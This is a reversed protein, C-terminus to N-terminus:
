KARLRRRLVLGGVAFVRRIGRPKGSRGPSVSGLRGWSPGGGHNRDGKALNSRGAGLGEVMLEWGRGPANRRPTVTSGQEVGVLRDRWDHTFVADGYPGGTRTSINGNVGWTYVAPDVATRNEVQHLENHDFAVPGFAGHETRDRLTLEDVRNVRWDETM